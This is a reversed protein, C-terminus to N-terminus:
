GFWYQQYPIFRGTTIIGMWLALGLGGTLRASVPPMPAQDWEALNRCVFKLFLFVNIGALILMAIKARFFINDYKDVPSAYFMLFGTITMIAFGLMNWSILRKMVVSTPIYRMMLGLLRLDIILATGGFVTLTLVHLTLIFLYM